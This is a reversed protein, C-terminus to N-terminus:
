KKRVLYEALEEMVQAHPVFNGQEIDKEALELMKKEKDSIEITWESGNDKITELRNMLDSDIIGSIWNILNQKRAEINM